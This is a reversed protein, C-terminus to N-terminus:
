GLRIKVGFYRQSEDEFVKRVSCKYEGTTYAADHLTFFPIDPYQQELCESVSNLLFDSELGQTLHAFGSKGFNDVSDGKKKAAKKQKRTLFWGNIKDFYEVVSPYQFSMVAKYPSEFHPPSNLASLFKKKAAHRHYKKGYQREV